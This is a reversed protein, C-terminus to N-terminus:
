PTEPSNPATHRREAQSAEPGDEAHRDEVEHVDAAAEAEPAERAAARGHRYEIKHM